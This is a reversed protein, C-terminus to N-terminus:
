WAAAAAVAQTVVCAHGCMRSWVHTFVSMRSCMCADPTSPLPRCYPGHPCPSVIHTPFTSIDIPEHLVRVEAAAAAEVMAAEAAEAAGVAAAVTAVAALAAAVMAAVEAAAAAVATDETAAVAGVAAAAAAPAQLLLLQM